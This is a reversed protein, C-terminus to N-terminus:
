LCSNLYDFRQLDKTFKLSDFKVELDALNQESIQLKTQTHELQERLSDIENSQYKIKLRLTHNEDKISEFEDLLQMLINTEELDQTIIINSLEVMSIEDTLIRQNIANSKHINLNGTLTKILNSHKQKLADLSNKVILIKNQILKQNM